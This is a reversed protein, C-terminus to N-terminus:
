WLSLYACGPTEWCDTSLLQFITKEDTVSNAWFSYCETTEVTCVTLGILYIFDQDPIGEVDLFICETQTGVSPLEHVYIKQNRIALAQLAFDFRLTHRGARKRKRRPRYLYSLQNITFIGNKNYRSIIKPTMRDLLSLNDETEAQEQCLRRFLCVQCHDKIVVPPPRAPLHRTWGKLKEIIPEIVPSLPAFKIQMTNTAANVIGGSLVPVNLVKALIHGIVALQIRQDVSVSHTGIALYPEYYVPIPPDQHKPRILFDAKAEFGDVKLTAAM